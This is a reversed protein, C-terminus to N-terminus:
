FILTLYKVKLQLEATLAATIALGTIDAIKGRIETIKINYDTNQVRGSIYTSKTQIM